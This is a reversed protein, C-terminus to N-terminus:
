KAVLRALRVALERPRIPKSVFDSAGASLAEVVEPEEANGSMMLVPVAQLSPEARMARVVGIGDLHPLFVDLLM